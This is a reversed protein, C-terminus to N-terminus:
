EGKLHSSVSHGRYDRCVEKSRFALKGPKSWFIKSKDVGYATLQSRIENATKEDWVGILLLDFEVSRLVELGYLRIHPYRYREPHADVWAAIQCDSYRSIQAYYDRGVAGAGYLIIKKGELEDDSCFYYKAIQFDQEAIRGMYESLHNWLFEDTITHMKQDLHYDRLIRCLDEHLNMIKKLDNIEYKHSLSNERTRYHYEAKDTLVIKESELVCICLALVDEGLGCDEPLRDFCKKIFDAQYLKSWLSPTIGSDEGSLFGELLESKDSPLVIVKRASVIKKTNNEWYGSHVFDAKELEIAEALTQYMGPDIYDDGDVFGIYQGRARKLGCKRARVPGGNQCHVVEIRSDGSAYNDCVAGSKDTSGDDVLIVQINRYTQRQISEICEAIYSEVNFVPVIISVLPCNMDGQGEKMGKGM